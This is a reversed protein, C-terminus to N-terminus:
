EHKHNMDKMMFLHMLPCALFLSFFLINTFPVKFIFIATLAAGIALLCYLLYNPKQSSTQTHIHHSKFTKNM